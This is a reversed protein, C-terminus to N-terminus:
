KSIRMGKKTKRRKREHEGILYLLMWWLTAAAGGACFIGVALALRIDSLIEHLYM